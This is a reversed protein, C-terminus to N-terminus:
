EEKDHILCQLKKLSQIKLLKMLTIERIRELFFYVLGGGM